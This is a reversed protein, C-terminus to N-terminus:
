KPGYYLDVATQDDVPPHYPVGDTGAVNDWSSRAHQALEALASAEDSWLTVEDSHRDWRRLVWTRGTVQRTLKERVAFSFRNLFMGLIEVTDAGPWEGTDAALDDMTATLDIIAKGEPTTPNPTTLM